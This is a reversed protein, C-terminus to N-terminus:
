ATPPTSKSEDKGKSRRANITNKYYDIQYNVKDIFSSYLDEGNLLVLANIVSVINKYDGDTAVRAARVDGSIRSAVEATRTGFNAIFSNNADVLKNLKDTASCLAVDSAYNNRMQNTLSALTESEKNYPERRMDGIQDVIRIIREAAAQIAPDYDILGSRIQLVFSRYLQDRLLDAKGIGITHQSGQEVEISALETTVDAVYSPFFKMIGLRNPDQASIEDRIVSHFQGHENNQFDSFDVTKIKKM